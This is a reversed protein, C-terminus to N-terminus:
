SALFHNILSKFEGVDGSEFVSGHLSNWGRVCAPVFSMSFQSIRVRIVELTFTHAAFGQRTVRIPACHAAPFLGWCHAIIIVFRKFYVFPLLEVVTGCIVIFIVVM